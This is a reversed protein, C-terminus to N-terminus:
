IAWPMPEVPEFSSQLVYNSSSQGANQIALALENVHLSFRPSLRCRRNEEIAQALEVVGRAFDMRQAGQARIKRAAKSHVMTIKRRLPSLFTRRRITLQRRLYVHSYIDWCDNIHLTGEDGIITLGHDHPAVISCTLRAVVGSKFRICAVSFDAANQEILGNTGKDDIRLSSFATVSEAPGFFAALWSLYYGAHELTCGVEFEDQYPWPAGTESMWRKYPMRHVMGDDLEAYVLRVPGIKRQRLAKWVTQASEGLVNCPASSIILGKKEALDVLAEADAFSTALPKESYVHKGALLALKSIEFHSRPNTLNVVLDVTPDALIEELSHFAPLSHYQTFRQLREPNQDTVGAIRLQSHAAFTRVYYDAVFGCGVFAVQM